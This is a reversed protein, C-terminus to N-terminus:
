SGLSHTFRTHEAGPYVFHALGLQRIRRLRQFEKTDILELVWQDNPGLSILDHIPDRFVKTRRRPQSNGSSNSVTGNMTGKYGSAPAPFAYLRPELDELDM